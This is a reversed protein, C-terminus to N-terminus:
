QRTVLRVHQHLGPQPWEPQLLDYSDYRSEVVKALHRIWANRQLPTTGAMAREASAIASDMRYSVNVTVIKRAMRWHHIVARCRPASESALSESDARSMTGRGDSDPDCRRGGSRRCGPRADQVIRGPGSRGPFLCVPGPGSWRVRGGTAPTVMVFRSRGCHARRARSWPGHGSAPSMASAIHGFPSGEQPQVPLASVADAQSPAVRPGGAVGPPLGSHRPVM